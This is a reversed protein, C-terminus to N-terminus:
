SSAAIILLTSATPLVDAQIDVYGINKLDGIEFILPQAKGATPNAVAGSASMYFHTNYDPSQTWNHAPFWTEAVGTIPNKAIPSHYDFALQGDAMIWGHPRAISGQNGPVVPANVDGFLPWGAIQIDATADATIGKIWFWLLMRQVDRVDLLRQVTTLRDYTLDAPNWTTGQSARPISKWMEPARLTRILEVKAM